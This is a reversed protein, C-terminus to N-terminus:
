QQESFMLSAYWAYADPHYLTDSHFIERFIPGIVPMQTAWSGRPTLRQYSASYSKPDYYPRDVSWLAIHAVEHVLVRAKRETDAGSNIYPCIYIKFLDTFYLRMGECMDSNEEYELTLSNELRRQIKHFNDLVADVYKQDITGSDSPDFIREFQEREDPTMSSLGKSLVVVASDVMQQSMPIYSRVENLAHLANESTAQVERTPGAGLLLISIYIIRLIWHKKKGIKLRIRIGSSAKSCLIDGLKKAWEGRGFGRCTMLIKQHVATFKVGLNASFDNAKILLTHKNMATEKTTGV